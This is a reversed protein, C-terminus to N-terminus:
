YFNDTYKKKLYIATHMLFNSRYDGESLKGSLLISQTCYPADSYPLAELIRDIEKLTTIMTQIVGLGKEFNILKNNSNIMRNPCDNYANFYPLFICNAQSEGQVCVSQKPFIEVKNNFIKALGFVEIIHSLSTIVDGANETEAFFFYLHLGGSKSRFACFKFGAEYLRVILWTYTYNCVDIDIVAFRCVNNKEKYTRIPALALGRTGKIHDEFTDRTVHVSDGKELGPPIVPFSKTGYQAVGVWQAKCKGSDNVAFPPEHIVYFEM